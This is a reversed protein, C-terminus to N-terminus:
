KPVAMVRFGDFRLTVTAHRVVRSMSTVASASDRWLGGRVVHYDGSGQQDINEGAMKGAPTAGVNDACWEAVNGQMDYLGWANPKKEGVPHTELHSNLGYWAYDGIKDPNDTSEYRMTIGARCAFEWQAETPLAFRMGSKDGCKENLKKLFAQCDDWDIREVPRNPPGKHLSPNAGILTQWQAQTVECKGLYFPEAITERHRRVGEKNNGMMFSGAPVGVLEMFVDPALEIKLEKEPLSLPKVNRRKTTPRRSAVCRTKPSTPGTRRPKREHRRPIPKRRSAAPLPWCCRWIAPSLSSQM